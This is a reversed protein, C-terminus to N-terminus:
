LEDFGTEQAVELIHAHVIEGNAWRRFLINRRDEREVTISSNFTLNTEGNVLCYRL